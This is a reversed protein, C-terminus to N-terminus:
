TTGTCRAVPLEKITWGWPWLALRCTAFQSMVRTYFRVCGSKRSKRVQGTPPPSVRAPQETLLPQDHGPEGAGLAVEDAENLAGRLPRV